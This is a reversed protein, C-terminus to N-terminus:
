GHVQDFTEAFARLKDLDKLRELNKNYRTYVDLAGVMHNIAVRDNREEPTMEHSDPDTLVRIWKLVTERASLYEEFSPSKQKPM